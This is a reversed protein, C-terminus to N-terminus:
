DKRERVFRAGIRYLGGPAGPEVRCVVADVRYVAKGGFRPRLRPPLRIELALHGGIPLCYRSEFGLGGGSVNLTWSEEDRPTGGADRGSVRLPLRLALRNQRASIQPM